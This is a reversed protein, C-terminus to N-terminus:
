MKKMAEGMLSVSKKLNSNFNNVKMIGDYLSDMDEPYYKNDFDEVSMGLSTALFSRRILMPKSAGSILTNVGTNKGKTVSKKLTDEIKKLDPEGNGQVFSKKEEDSFASDKNYEMIVDQICALWEAYFKQAEYYPGAKLKKIVLTSKDSLTVTTEYVLPEREPEPKPETIEAIPAAENEPKQEPEPNVPPTKVEAPVEPKVQDESM